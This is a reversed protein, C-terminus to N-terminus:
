DWPQPLAAACKKCTQSHAPNFQGCAPCKIPRNAAMAQQVTLGCAACAQATESNEAGCRPCIVPEPKPEPLPEKCKLCTKLSGPNSAGCSPCTIAKNLTPPRFCM